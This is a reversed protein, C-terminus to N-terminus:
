LFVKFAFHQHLSLPMLCWLGVLWGMKPPPFLEISYVEDQTTGLDCCYHHYIPVSQMPLHVDYLQKIFDVVAGILTSYAIVLCEHVLFVSSDNLAQLYSRYIVM